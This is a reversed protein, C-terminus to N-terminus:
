TQDWEEREGHHIPRLESPRASRLEDSGSLSYTGWSGCSRCRSQWESVREGCEECDYPLRLRQELGLARQYERIAEDCDKYRRYGEALLQHLLPLEVGSGEIIQLQEMAEDVMELRLCLKGFFLRLILDDTKQVVQNRYFSLLSSPDEESMYLDELRSLFVGKGLAEYGEKWSKAAEETRKLERLADGQSVRAPAFSPDERVIQELESVAKKTEGGALTEQAVEYRLYLQKRKEEDVRKGGQIAKVVRKQLDLAEQWHGQSMKLDRLGRLAKRNASELSLIEEYIKAAEGERDMGEYTSALKFLVEMSSPEIEKAKQLLAIAEQPDGEQEAVSSLALFTEIRSPDRDLARQLLTRARKIDGSLLRAVGERYISIVERSKKEQRNGRWHKVQHSFSHYIQLLFGGSFGVLISGVVLIAASTTVSKDSTLYLTIEQPNILMFYIFVVLFFILLLPFTLFTM